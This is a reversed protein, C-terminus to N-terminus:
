IEYRPRIIQTNYADSLDTFFGIERLRLKLQHLNMNFAKNDEITPDQMKPVIALGYRQQLWEMFDDILIPRSRFDTDSYTGTQELVAIQVFFELLRSGMHWRRRNTKGKGQRLLCTEQNKMFLSDLQRILEERYNGSRELSVLEVFTELPTLEIMKRIADVEPREKEESRQELLRDTKSNFYNDMESLPLQLVRLVQEVTTLQPKGLRKYFQSDTFQFLQNVIFVSQIYENMTAYHMATNDMALNAMHSTHDSGMDVLLAPLANKPSTEPNQFAYPCDAFPNEKKPDVPCNLCAPHAEKDQVWGSLQRFLRLLYLGLHLGVATRIYGIMVSRPVRNEYAMLRRLDNALLRAQGVCLPPDTVAGAGAPSEQLQPNDVMRVILLTDIDLRTENDYVEYGASPDMGQGLYGALRKILEPDAKQIMSFIHDSARSDKLHEPNRLKFVNLHLPFPAAVSEKGQVGRYVLDILDSHLWDYVVDPYESFGKLKDGHQQILQDRIYEVTVKGRGTRPVPRRNNYKLLVFLNVLARDLEVQRPWIQCIKTNNFEYDKKIINM